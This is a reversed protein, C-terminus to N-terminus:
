VEKLDMSHEPSHELWEGAEDTQELKEVTESRPEEESKPPLASDLIEPELISRGREVSAQGSSTQEESEPQEGASEIAYTGEPKERDFRMSILSSVGEEAMTVGYITNAISMTRKNHTVIIFQSQDTFSELMSTFRGVNADDLAADIEDLFCFPSPKIQYIAFLLAIAVLTKEGGSLLSISQLKKGPPQIEIEIGADIPDGELLRLEARGGGFMKRFMNHFNVRVQELTTLFKEVATSHLERTTQVLTNRAKELDDRQATLFEYRERVEQYEEIALENVVGIRELRRRLTALLEEIEEDSRTDEDSLDQPIEGDFMERMRREWYEKEVTGRVRQQELQNREEDMAQISELFAKEETELAHIQERVSAAGSDSEQIQTWLSDRESRLARVQEDLTAIEGEADKERLQQLSSFEEKEEISRVMEAVHRSITERQETWREQDKQRELIRMRLEALREQIRNRAQESEAVRADWTDMEELLLSEQEKLEALIRQRDEEAEKGELIAKEIRTQEEKTAALSKQIRAILEDTRRLDEKTHRLNAETALTQESIENREGRIRNVSERLEAIQRTLDERRRALQEAEARLGEIENIRSLLSTEEVSGGIIVGRGDLLEGQPTVIRWGAPLNSWIQLGEELSEAILTNSLLSEVVETTEEDAHVLTHARRLGRLPEPVEGIFTKPNGNAMFAVRGKRKERLREIAREVTRLDSTLIAELAKDLASEIAREFGKEVVIREAITHSLGEVRKNDERLLFRVGPAFGELNNQLRVLSELRSNKQQWATETEPLAKGTLDRKESTEQLLSNVQELRAALVAIQRTLDAASGELEGRRALHTRLDSESQREQAALNELRSTYFEYDRQWERSLNRYDTMTRQVENLRVKRQGGEAAIRRCEERALDAEKEAWSVEEEIGILDKSITKLNEDALRIREEEQAIRERDAQVEARFREALQRHETIRNRLAEIQKETQELRNNLQLYTDRFERTRHDFQQAAKMLEAKRSRLDAINAGSQQIKATLEEIQGTLTDLDTLLKRGRRREAVSEILKLERRYQQVREAQTAQRKLSRMQRDLESIINNVVVLDNETRELKRLAEAQRHLYRSVGAAEEIIERRETPKANIIMDVRGQEILSYTSTRMGSDLFLDTIDKLRCPTGNLLYESEGDRFLKRTIAVEEYSVPLLRDSNDFVLTVQALGLPSRNSTGNFILDAMKTGRLKRPNQEGLVWRVADSINSKGCGNPGVVVTVGSDFEVETKDAFSKFGSLTLKRLYM